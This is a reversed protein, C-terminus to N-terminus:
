RLAGTNMKPRMRGVNRNKAKKTPRSSSICLYKGPKRAIDNNKVEEETVKIVPITMKEIEKEKGDVSLKMKGKEATLVVSQGGMRGVMYFTEAPKGRLALELTNEKIKEEDEPSIATMESERGSVEIHSAEMVMDFIRLQGGRGFRQLLDVSGVITIRDGPRAQDVVDDKLDVHLSRPLQGAPLDEPREQITVRQSDM